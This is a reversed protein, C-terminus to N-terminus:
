DLSVHARLWPALSPSSCRGSGHAFVYLRGAVGVSIPRFRVSWLGGWCGPCDCILLELAPDNEGPLIALTESASVQEPCVPRSFRIRREEGYAIARAATRCPLRDSPFADM